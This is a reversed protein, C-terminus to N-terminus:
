EEEALGDFDEPLEGFRGNRLDDIWQMWDQEKNNEAFMEEISEMDFDPNIWSSGGGAAVDAEIAEMLKRFDEANDIRQVAFGDGFVRQNAVGQNKKDDRFLNDIETLAKDHEVIDPNESRLFSHLESKYAASYFENEDDELYGDHDFTDDCVGVYKDDDHPTHLIDRWNAVRKMIKTMDAYVNGKRDVKCMSLVPYLFDYDGRWGGDSISLTGTWRGNVELYPLREIGNEEIYDTITKHIREGLDPTDLAAYKAILKTRAM